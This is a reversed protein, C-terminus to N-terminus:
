GVQYGDQRVAREFLAADLELGFGTAVQRLGFVDIFNAPTITFPHQFSTVTDGSLAQLVQLKAEPTDPDPPPVGPPKYLRSLRFHTRWM